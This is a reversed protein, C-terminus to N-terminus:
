LMITDQAFYIVFVHAGEAEASYARVSFFEYIRSRAISVQFEWIFTFLASYVDLVTLFMCFTDFFYFNTILQM